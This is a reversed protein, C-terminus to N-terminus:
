WSRAFWNNEAYAFTPSALFRADTMPSSSATASQYATDSIQRPRRSGNYRCPGFSFRVMCSVSSRSPFQQPHQGSFFQVPNIRLQDFFVIWTFCVLRGAPRLSYKYETANPQIAPLSTVTRGPLGRPGRRFDAERPHIHPYRLACPMSAHVQTRSSPQSRRSQAAPSAALDVVYPQKVHISTLCSLNLFPPPM